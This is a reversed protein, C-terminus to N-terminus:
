EEIEEEDTDLDALQLDFWFEVGDPMNRVGYHQGHMDMIAKVIALGIGYSQMGDRARAKDGRYFSVFINELDEEAIQSGSNFVRVVCVDEEQKAFLCIRGQEGSYKMANEFLNSVVREIKEYDAFVILSDDM